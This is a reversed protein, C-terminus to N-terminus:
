SIVEGDCVINKSDEIHFIKGKDGGALTSFRNGEFTVNLCTTVKVPVGLFEEGSEDVHNTFTNNRFTVDQAESIAIDYDHPNNIFLCDEVLVNTCPYSDGAPKVLKSLGGNGEIAFSGFKMDSMFGFKHSTHDFLCRQVTTNVGVTNEAWNEECSIMIGSSGIDRFTCNKATVNRAKVAIGRARTHRVLVNDFTYYSSTRSVNDVIVRNKPDSTNDDLDYGELAAFNVDETKIKIGYLYCSCVITVTEDKYPYDWTLLHYKEEEFLTNGELVTTDCVVRGNSTYCFVTDGKGFPVTNTGTGETSKSVTYLYQRTNTLLGKYVLTTTGDGNDILRHLRSSSGHQNAGDDCMHEFLCSTANVGYFGANIHMADVSGTRPISGRCRGKEDISVELDVNYEKEIAKYREYTEKDIIFPSRSTNCVRVFHVNERTGYGVLGLAAGYGYVTIDKFLINGANHIYFTHSNQGAMRCSWVEGVSMPEYYKERDNQLQIVFTKDEREEAISFYTQGFVAWNTFRGPHFVETSTSYKSSDTMAYGYDYGAANIVHLKYDPLKELVYIQGSSQKAYGITLGRISFHNTADMDIAPGYDANERMAGYAYVVTNAHAATAQIKETARYAAPPIIVKDGDECGKLFYENFTMEKDYDAQLVYERRSMEIFLDKDIHPLLEEDAGVEPRADVDRVNDGNYEASGKNLTAGAVKNGDCLVYSSGELSIDGSVVNEIVYANKSDSMSVYSATNLLVSCNYVGCLEIGDSDCGAVLVNQSGSLRIVRASCNKIVASSAFCTIDGGIKCNQLIVDTSDACIEVSGLFTLGKLTLAQANEIRSDGDIEYLASSDIAGANLKEIYGELSLTVTNMETEEKRKKKITVGKQM